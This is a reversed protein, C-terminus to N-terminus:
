EHRRPALLTHARGNVQVWHASPALLIRAFRDHGFFLSPSFTDNSMTMSAVRSSTHKMSNPATQSPVTAPGRIPQVECCVNSLFAFVAFDYGPRLELLIHSSAIHTAAEQRIPRRDLPQFRALPLTTGRHPSSWRSTGPEDRGRSQPKGQHGLPKAEPLQKSAGKNQSRLDVNVIGAGCVYRLLLVQPALAESHPRKEVESPMEDSSSDVGPSDYSFSAVRLQPPM